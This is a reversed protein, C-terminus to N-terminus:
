NHKPQNTSIWKGTGDLYIEKKWVPSDHKYRNITEELALFAEKRHVSAIVVYVIPDGIALKGVIHVLVLGLLNYKIGIEETIKTLHKDAKEEWAEVEMGVVEKEENDSIKRVVGTFTTIAGIAPNQDLLGIADNLTMTGTEAIKGVFNM